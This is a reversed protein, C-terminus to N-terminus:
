PVGYKRAAYAQWLAADNATFVRNLVVLRAVYLEVFGNAGATGGGGFVKGAAIAFASFNSSLTGLAVGGRWFTLSHAGANMAFAIAQAGVTSSSNPVSKHGDGDYGGIANGSPYLEMELVRPPSVSYILYEYGASQQAHDCIVCVTYTTESMGAPWTACQTGVYKVAPKGGLAPHSSVYNGRTEDSVKVLHATGVQDTWQSVLGDVVTVADATYDRLRASGWDEPTWTFPLGGGFVPSNAVGIAM